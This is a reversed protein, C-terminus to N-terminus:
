HLGLSFAFHFGCIKRNRWGLVDLAELVDLGGGERGWCFIKNLHFIISIKAFSSLAVVCAVEARGGRGARGVCPPAHQQM